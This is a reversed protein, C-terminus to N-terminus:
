QGDSPPAPAPPPPQPLDPCTPAYKDRRLYDHQESLRLNRGAVECAISAWRKPDTTWETLGADTGVLFRDGAPVVAGARAPAGRGLEGVERAGRTLDWLRVIGDEDASLLFHGDETCEMATIGALHGKLLPRGTRYANTSSTDWIIINGDKDGGYVVKGAPCVALSKFSSTSAALMRGTPPLGKVAGQIGSWMWITSDFGTSILAGDSKQFTLAAIRKSHGVLPSGLPGLQSNWLHITKSDGGTAIVAGDPSIAVVAANEGTEIPGALSRGTRTDWLQLVGRSTTTALKDGHPSFAIGWIPNRGTEIHVGVSALDTVRRLTVTGDDNGEAVLDAEANVTVARVPRNPDDLVRLLRSRNVATHAWFILRADTGATVFEGDDLQVVGRVAAGHGILPPAVERGTTSWLRVQGDRGASAILSGDASVAVGFVRDKHGTIVQERSGSEIDWIRVRGDAGGAALTQDDVLAVSRVADGQDPLARVQHGSAIDWILIRGDQSAHETRGGASILYRSNATFALANVWDRHGSLIHASGPGRPRLIVRNDIGGTAIWRGDPSYAVARVSGIHGTLPAGQALGDSTSWQQVVGTSGTATVFAGDPSFAVSHIGGPIAMTHQIQYPYRSSILMVKGLIDGVALLRANQSKALSTLPADFQVMRTIRPNSRLAALESGYSRPTPRLRVAEQSLLLAQDLQTEPLNAATVALEGSQAQNRQIRAVVGLAVSASLLIALAASLARFMRETRRRRDQARSIAARSASLLEEVAPSVGLLTADTSSRWREAERLEVDDLLGGQAKGLRIWSAAAAELERRTLEAARRQNIWGRLSPWGLILAEHSLDVQTTADLESATATLLHAAVLSDLTTAFLESDDDASALSERTQQRRVDERGEVFQVLRLFTRQAILRAEDSPLAAMVADARNAMAVQLGTRPPDGYRGRPLVLAEYASMPLFRYALREWLLVLTEQLFPLAGPQKDSDEILKDVLSNEVYVGVAEAPAVISEHLEDGTLPVIEMRHQKVVPWIDSAMLQPYYDARVTAVVRTPTAGVVSQLGEWFTKSVSETGDRTTFVEELQDIFLLPQKDSSTVSALGIHANNLSTLPDPGPRMIIPEYGKQRLRPIVGARILSSKGCGSAGVVFLWPNLRIHSMAEEIEAERGRFSDQDDEEYPRMGRYPCAPAAQDRILPHGLDRCLREVVPGWEDRSTAQLPNLMRLRLPLETPRLLIPIVPWTLQEAGFHQGLLTVFQQAQDAVYAPSLVVVIRDSLEVAQSSAELLPMGATFSDVTCCRIGSTTLAALFFGEAWERDDEAFSIFVDFRDTETASSKESAAGHRTVQDGSGYENMAM